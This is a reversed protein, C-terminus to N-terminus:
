FQVLRGKFGACHVITGSGVGLTSVVFRCTRSSLEVGPKVSFTSVAKYALLRSALGSSQESDPVISYQDVFQIRCAIGDRSAKLLRKSTSSYISIFHPVSSSARASEQRGHSTLPSQPKERDSNACLLM